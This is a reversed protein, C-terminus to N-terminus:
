FSYDDKEIEQEYKEGTESILYFTGSQALPGVQILGKRELQDIANTIQLRSYTLSVVMDESCFGSVGSDICNSLIATEVESLRSKSASSQMGALQAQLQIVMKNLTANEDALKALKEGSETLTTQLGSSKEKLQDIENRQADFLNTILQMLTDDLVKGKFTNLTATIKM